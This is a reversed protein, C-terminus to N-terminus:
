QVEIEARLAGSAKLAQFIAVLDRPKVGLADLAAALEGVTAAGPLAVLHGDQEEVQIESEPAVITDGDGFANPQSVASKEVVRVTIGGHAIAVPALTVAGGAVITGTRESLVVRAHSDPVASLGELLAVYEVVRSRWADGIAVEVAGPDRVRATGAGLEADISGAIRAATTFDADRLVLVLTKGPLAGPAGRELTAGGPIRGATAHNKGSSSGAASGAVFGGLTLSGQALAYTKGNSAILRAQVLTGGQLSKASGLSSVTVDIRQGARGFPPLNGTVAVLAVNKAKLDQETVQIGLRKIMAALPRRTATSSADDGSGALGVVLGVGTLANARVGEVDALDKIRTASAPAVTLLLAFLTFLSLRRM